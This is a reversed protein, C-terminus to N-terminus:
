IETTQEGWSPGYAGEFPITLTQGAITIPNSFYSRVKEIAWPRLSIPWQTILADHVQHLNEIYLSGDPRRNERDYWLRHLAKNTAYTTNAQPEHALWEKLTSVEDRRGMFVRKHGSPVIMYGQNKLYTASVRQLNMVGKYRSLYLRQLKACIEPAVYVAEGTFKFSDQLIQDSMTYEKMLYNSGHQVRKCAFYLWPYPNIETVKGDKIQKALVKLEARTLKDVNYGLYMLAIIQAPKLGYQYDDWMTPDGLSKCHAAVTWGDAGQLDNQNLDYGHDARYIDRNKKTVTQLNFGSGSPSTYCSLRGTESGVINYGCRIRGDRDAKNGLTETATYLARLKIILDIAPIEPHKGKLKLLALKNTTESREDDKNKKKSYQVPLKLKRYLFETMQDNSDVNLECKLLISIEGLESKTLERQERAAKTIITVLRMADALFDKKASNPLDSFKTVRGAKVDKVFCHEKAREFISHITLNIGALINLEHQVENIEANTRDLRAMSREKDFLIGRLESYLLPLLLEFNFRYHALSGGHLQSKHFQWCEYTVCSDKGNYTFFQTRDNTQRDSKYYPEKTWLSAQVALSKELECMLEWHMLMIDDAFGRVLIKMHYALVFLDYLGNQLIKPVNPDALTIAVERLLLAEEDVTWPCWQGFYFPVVFAYSASDAFSICTVGEQVGGEIDIAVHRPSNRLDRLKACLVELSLTTEIVRKPLHLDRTRGESAARLLDFNLLPTWSYQRLVGAPHYTALCKFALPEFATPDAVNTLYAEFISGRWSDVSAKGGKFVSLAVNGLLVVLNPQFTILDLTLQHIGERFEPGNRDFKTIDNNPPRHQCVNGIFCRDPDIGARSLMARLFRGSMGALPRGETVETEGPAEGIIAIRYDAPLLPFYNPVKM